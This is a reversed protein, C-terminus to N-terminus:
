AGDVPNTELSVGAYPLGFRRKLLDEVSTDFRDEAMEDCRRWAGEWGRLDTSCDGIARFDPRGGHNLMVEVLRVDAVMCATVFASDEDPAALNVLAGHAIFCETLEILGDTDPYHSLDKGEARHHANHWLNGFNEILNALPTNGYRDLQNPDAGAALTAKIRPLDPKEVADLLQQELPGPAKVADKWNLVVMEPLSVEVLQERVQEWTFSRTSASVPVPKGAELLTRIEAVREETITEENSAVQVFLHPTRSWIVQEREARVYESVTLDAHKWLEWMRNSLWSMAVEERQFPFVIRREGVRDGDVYIHHDFTPDHRRLDRLAQSYLAEAFAAVLPFVTLCIPEEDGGEWRGRISGGGRSAILAPEYLQARCYKSDQAL